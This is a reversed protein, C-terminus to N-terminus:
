RELLGWFSAGLVEAIRVLTGVTPDARGEEIARFRELPVGAAEAAAMETLGAALRKNQIRRGVERFVSSSRDQERERVSLPESPLPAYRTALEQLEEPSLDRLAWIVRQREDDEPFTVLDLLAIGLRDALVKLTSVTPRTLGREVDSLHGKSGLESEYALKELSLGADLRLRRIRQGIRLALPDPHRRRPM